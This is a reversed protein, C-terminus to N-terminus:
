SHRGAAAGISKCSGIASLFHTVAVTLITGGAGDVRSVLWVAATRGVNLALLTLVASTNTITFVSSLATQSFGTNFLTHARRLVFAVFTFLVFATAAFTTGANDVAAAIDSAVASVAFDAPATQGAVIVAM